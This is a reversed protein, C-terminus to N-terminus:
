VRYIILKCIIIYCDKLKGLETNFLDIPLDSFIEFPTPEWTSTSQSAM